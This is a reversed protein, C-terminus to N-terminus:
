DLGTGISASCYGQSTALQGNAAAQEVQERDMYCFDILGVVPLGEHEFLLPKNSFVRLITVGMAYCDCYRHYLGTTTYAPDIFGESCCLEASQLQEATIPAIISACM